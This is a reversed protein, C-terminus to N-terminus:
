MAFSHVCVTRHVPRLWDSRRDSSDKAELTGSIVTDKRGSEKKLEFRDSLEDRTVSRPRREDDFSTADNTRISSCGATGVAERHRAASKSDSAFRRDADAPNIRAVL